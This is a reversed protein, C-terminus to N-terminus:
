KKIKEMYYKNLLLIANKIENPDNRDLMNTIELASFGQYLKASLYTSRIQNIEELMREYRSIYIQYEPYIPNNKYHSIVRECKSLLKLFFDRDVLRV